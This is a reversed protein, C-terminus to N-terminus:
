RPPIAKGCWWASAGGPWSRRTEALGELMFRYHRRNAEPYSDTLAFVVLVPLDLRNAQAIAYELAPNDHARQSQQMWYLVWAGKQETNRNLLHIRAQNL